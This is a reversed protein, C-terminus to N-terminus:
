PKPDLPSIRILELRTATRRLIEFRLDAIEITEGQAPITGTNFLIYGALTQYDDDEPIDIHNIERLTEIEVRGSCEYVGPSIERVTESTADHEDRIDGFIEEVLDELTVLGSTGGFEDVM